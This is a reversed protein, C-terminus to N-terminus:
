AWNLLSKLASRKKVIVRNKGKRKADYLAEDVRQILSEETDGDQLDTLGCSVTFRVREKKGLLEYEYSSSAIGAVVDRMRDEVQAATAAGLLVAFEEGGYRAVFDTQRLGKTLWQATCLLVRDGIPHGHTDNIVKFNDVDLMAISLPIQQAKAQSMMRALARQFGRRNAVRTLPDLAAEEEVESLRAQLSEVRQNLQIYTRQDRQQKEDVTKRLVHVEAALRHKLERVDDLQGLRNFRESSAVMQAHFETGDGVAVKAAERLISIIETFEEERSRHYRRSTKFYTECTLICAEIVRPLEMRRSADTAAARYSEVKERFKDTDQSEADPPIEVLLGLLRDVFATLPSDAAPSMVAAVTTPSPRRLGLEVLHERSDM